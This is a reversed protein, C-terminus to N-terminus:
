HTLFGIVSAARSRLPDCLGCTNCDIDSRLQAPCIVVKRGDPTKFRRGDHLPLEKHRTVGAMRMPLVVAARWGCTVLRDAALMDDCSGMSLGKLHAGKGAPFHTYLFMGKLGAARVQEHLSAVMDASLVSPDGGVAGRVYKAAQARLALATELRYREAGHKSYEKIMRGHGLQSSGGWHYCSSLMSCGACSARALDLTQGVYGQPINGTKRNSSTGVWLIKIPEAHM